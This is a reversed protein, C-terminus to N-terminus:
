ATRGDQRSSLTATSLVRQLQRTPLIFATLASSACAPGSVSGHFLEVEALEMAMCVGLSKYTGMREQWLAYGLMAVGLCM